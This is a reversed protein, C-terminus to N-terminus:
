EGLPQVTRECDMHGKKENGKRKKKISLKTM